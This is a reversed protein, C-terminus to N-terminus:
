PAREQPARGIDIRRLQVGLQRTERGVRAHFPSSPANVDLRLEILGDAAAEAPVGVAWAFAPASSEVTRRGVQRGDAFLSLVIRPHRGVVFAEGHVVLQLPRGAAPVALYLWAQERASWVGADEPRYWGAGLVGNGDRGRGFRLSRPLEGRQAQAHTRARENFQVVIFDRSHGVFYAFAAVYALGLGALLALLLWRRWAPTLHHDAQRADM